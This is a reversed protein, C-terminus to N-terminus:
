GPKIPKWREPCAPSLYLSQVGNSIAATGPDVSTYTTAIEIVRRVLQQSFAIYSADTLATVEYAHPTLVSIPLRSRRTGAKVTMSGGDAGELLLSGEVLYICIDDRSRREILRTGSSAKRITEYGAIIERQTDTLENFPSFWELLWVTVADGEDFCSDHPPNAMLDACYRAIPDPVPDANDRAPAPVAGQERRMDEALSLLEPSNHRSTALLAFLDQVDLQHRRLSFDAGYRQRLTDDDVEPVFLVPCFQPAPPGGDGTANLLLNIAQCVTAMRGWQGGEGPLTGPVRESFIMTGASRQEALDTDVILGLSLTDLAGSRYQDLVAQLRFALRRSLAEDVVPEGGADIQALAGRDTLLYLGALCSQGRESGARDEVLRVPAMQQKLM